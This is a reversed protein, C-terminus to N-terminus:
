LPWAPAQWIWQCDPDPILNRGLEIYPSEGHFDSGLSGYLEFEQALQKLLLREQPSQQSAIVEMGDGGAEKFHTLLRRLWKRNLQYRCPHALVAQGGAAQITAVAAEITCWQNPVYGTKGRSLYRQFVRKMDPAYGENILWRAFHARSIGALQAQQQAGEYAGEIGAKALREGILRARVERQGQQSELLSLLGVHEPCVNLGVVHIDYHHWHASIEVGNILKLPQSLTQNFQHAAALGAVTDHDTIALVQVQKAVAREVLEVPTLRGDSATTHSHLDYRLM